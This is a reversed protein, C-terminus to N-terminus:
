SKNNYRRAIVEVASIFRELLELTYDVQLQQDNPEKEDRDIERLKKRAEYKEKATTM